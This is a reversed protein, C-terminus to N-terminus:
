PTTPIGSSSNAGKDDLFQGRNLLSLMVDGTFPVFAVFGDPFILFPFLGKPSFPFEAPGGGGFSAAPGGGGFSATGGLSAAPGGGSFSAAGGLSAAPGGGGLAVPELGGFAVPGFGGLSLMVGGGTFPVCVPLTLILFPGEGLPDGVVSAGVTEGVVPVGVVLEGVPTGVGICTKERAVLVVEFDM